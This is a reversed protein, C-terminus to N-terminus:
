PQTLECLMFCLVTCIEAMAAAFKGIGLPIQAMEEILIHSIFTATGCTAIACLSARFARSVRSGLRELWEIATECGFHALAGLVFAAAFTNHMARSAHHQYAAVGNGGFSGVFAMALSFRHLALRRGGLALGVIKHRVFAVGLFATLSTTIGLAGFNSAPQIDIAASLFYGKQAFIAGESVRSSIRFAAVFTFLPLLVAVALLLVTAPVDAEAVQLRARKLRSRGRQASIRLTRGLAEGTRGFVGRARGTRRASSHPSGQRQRSTSTPRRRAPLEM